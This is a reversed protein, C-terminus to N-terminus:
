SAVVAFGVGGLEGIAVVVVVDFGVAFGMLMEVVAFETVLLMEAGIALHFCCNLMM